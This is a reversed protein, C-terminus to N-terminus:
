KKLESDVYKIYMVQPKSNSRFADVEWLIVSIIIGALMFLMIILVYKMLENVDSIDKDHRGVRRSLNSFLKKNLEGTPVSEKYDGIRGKENKSGSDM